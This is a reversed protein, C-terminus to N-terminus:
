KILKDINPELLRIQNLMSQDTSGSLWTEFDTVSSVPSKGTYKLPGNKTQVRFVPYLNGNQRVLDVNIPLTVYGNQQYRAHKYDNFANTSGNGNLLVQAVDTNLNLFSAGLSPSDSIINAPVKILQTNGPETKDTLKIYYEDGKRVVQQELDKSAKSTLLKLATAPDYQPGAVRQEIDAEIVNTLSSIFQKEANEDKHIVAASETKFTGTYPALKQATLINIQNTFDKNTNVIPSLKELYSDLFANGTKGMKSNAFVERTGLKSKLLRERPTLESDDTTLSTTYVGRGVHTSVTREKSMYDFVEKATFKEGSNKFVLPPIKSLTADIVQKQTIGGTIEKASQNNFEDLMAKQNAITNQNKKYTNIWQREADTEPKFTGNEIAERIDKPDVKTTISSKSKAIENLINANDGDLQSTANNFNKYSELNDTVADGSGVFVTPIPKIADLARGEASEAVRLHGQAILNKVAKDKVDDNRQIYDLELGKTKFYVDKLPNAVIESKVHAWAFGNAIQDIYNKTHILGRAADPDKSISALTNEYSEDLAGKQGDYGLARKYYDISENLQRQKNPDNTILLDKSAQQLQSLYTRKSKDYDVTAFRALADKDYGQLNLEGDLRLQNLDTSDLTANLITRIQGETVAEYGQRNLADVIKNSNVTGDANIVSGIDKFDANSHIKSITDIVKKNVDTYPTYGTNFRQGVEPSSLWEQAKRNFHAANSAGLTGKKKADDMESIGKKYAATSSVANQINEDKIIQTAMGGVSSIVQQNSFDGAAVYKLNSGLQNLKSQLYAKDANNAVDMGAVNDIYSQVKQVGQDYQQQKYMGVRAMDDVSLQKVYPNFQSIADTFSAM